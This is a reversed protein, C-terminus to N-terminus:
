VDISFEKVQEATVELEEEKALPLPILFRDMPWFDRVFTNLTKGLQDMRWQPIMGPDFDHDEIEDAVMEDVMECFRGALKEGSLRMPIFAARWYKKGEVLAEEGDMDTLLDELECYPRTYEGKTHTYLYTPNDRAVINKGCYPCFKMGHMDPTDYTEPFAWVRNEGCAAVWTTGTDIDVEERWVCNTKMFPETAAWAILPIM